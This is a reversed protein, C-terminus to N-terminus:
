YHYYIIVHMIHDYLCLYFLFIGSFKYIIIIIIIFSFEQVSSKYVNKLTKLLFKYKVGSFELGLRWLSLFRAKYISMNQCPQRRLGEYKEMGSCRKRAFIETEGGRDRVTYQM